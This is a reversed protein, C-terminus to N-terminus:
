TQNREQNKDRYQVIMAIIEIPPAISKGSGNCRPCAYFGFFGQWFGAGYCALCKPHQPTMPETSASM